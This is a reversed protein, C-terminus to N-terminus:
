IHKYINPWKKNQTLKIVNKYYYEDKNLSSLLSTQIIRFIKEICDSPIHKFPIWGRTEDFIMKENIKVCGEEEGKEFWKKFARIFVVNAKENTIETEETTIQDIYKQFSIKPPEYTEQLKSELFKIREKLSHVTCKNQHKELLSRLKFHKHCFACTIEMKKDM